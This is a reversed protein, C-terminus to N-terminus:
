GLWASVVLRSIRGLALRGLCFSLKKGSPLAITKGLWAWVGLRGIQGLSLGDFSFSLVEATLTEAERLCLAGGCM